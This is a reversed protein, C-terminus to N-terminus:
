KANKILNAYMFCVLIATIIGFITSLINFILVIHSRSRANQFDKQHNAHRTLISFVLAITCFPSVWFFMWGFLIFNLISWILYDFPIPIRQYIEISHRMEM